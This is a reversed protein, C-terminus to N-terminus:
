QADALALRRRAAILAHASVALIKSRLEEELRPSSCWLALTGADWFVIAFLGPANVEFRAGYREVSEVVEDDPFLAHVRLRLEELTM